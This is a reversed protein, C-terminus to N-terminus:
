HCRNWVKLFRASYWGWDPSQERTLGLLVPLNRYLYERPHSWSLMGNQVGRLINKPRKSLDNEEPERLGPWLIYTDLRSFSIRARLTEVYLFIKGWSQALDKLAHGDPPHQEIRDPRFKFRLAKDYSPNLEFDAIEQVGRALERLRIDRGQYATTFRGHVILLADGLALMCKYYNRRVFDNDPSEELGHTVRMAWLLGAGRNLLLRAAELPPLKRRILPPAHRSLFDAPGALVKHGNLLDHWMLRHPWKRIHSITLPRSFDIEIKAANEYERKVGNLARQNVHYPRKVVLTLDLDNYPREIGDFEVVGGEGRGYGGGLILAELNNSLADRVEGSLRHLFRGMWDNFGPSANSSYIM